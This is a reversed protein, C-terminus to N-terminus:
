LKKCPKTTGIKKLVLMLWPSLCATYTAGLLIDLFIETKYGVFVSSVHFFNYQISLAFTFIVPLLPHDQLIEGKLKLALATGMLYLGAFMGFRECSAIDVLIGLMWSAALADNASAHLALYVSLILLLEPKTGLIELESGCFIQVFFLVATVFCFVHWRM